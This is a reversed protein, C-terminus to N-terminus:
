LNFTTFNLSQSTFDLYTYKTYFAHKLFEFPVCRALYIYTPQGPLCKVPHSVPDQNVSIAQNYQHFEIRCCQQGLVFIQHIGSVLFFEGSPM